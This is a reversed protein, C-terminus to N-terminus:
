RGNMDIVTAPVLQFHVPTRALGHRDFGARLGRTSPVLLPGTARVTVDDVQPTSLVLLAITAIAGNRGLYRTEGGPEAAHRHVRYLAMIVIGSALIATVNTVFLLLARDMRVVEPAPVENRRDFRTAQRADAKVIEPV